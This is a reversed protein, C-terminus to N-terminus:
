QVWRIHTEPTSAVVEDAGIDYYTNQPRTDGDIDDTYSGSMNYGSDIAETDSADLHMNPTGRGVYTLTVNKQNNTCTGCGGNDSPDQNESCINNRHDGSSCPAATTGYCYGGSEPEYINNTHVTFSTCRDNGYTYSGVFTNNAVEGYDNLYSAVYSLSGTGDVVLVNNRLNMTIADADTGSRFGYWLNDYTGLEMWVFNREINSVASSSLATGGAFANIGGTGTLTIHIQNDYFNVYEENFIMVNGATGTWVTGGRASSWKGTEGDLEDPAGRVTITDSSTAQTWGYVNINGCDYSGGASSDWCWFEVPYDISGDNTSEATVLSDHDCDYGGCGGPNETTDGVHVVCPSKSRGDDCDGVAHATVPFALLTILLLRKM